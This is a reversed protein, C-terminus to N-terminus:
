KLIVKPAGTLSPLEGTALTRTGDTITIHPYGSFTNKLENVAAAIFNKKTSVNPINWYTLNITITLFTDSISKKYEEETKETPDEPLLKLYVDKVAGPAMKNAFDMFQQAYKASIYNNGRNKDFTPYTLPLSTSPSSIATTPAQSTPTASATINKQPANTMEAILVLSWFVLMFAWKAKPNWDRKYAWYTFFFPFFIVALIIGLPTGFFNKGTPASPEM